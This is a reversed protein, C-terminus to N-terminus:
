GRYGTGAIRRQFEACLYTEQVHRDYKNDILFLDSKSKVQLYEQKINKFCMLGGFLGNGVPHYDSYLCNFCIKLYVHNPLQNNLAQLADEFVDHLGSTVFHGQSYDFSLKLKEEDIGGNAKPSGFILNITLEGSETAQELFVSVTMTFTLSCACLVGNNLVFTAVAAHNIDDKHIEFMDFDTGSFRIGRIITHMVDGDNVITITETGSRDQYQALYKEM